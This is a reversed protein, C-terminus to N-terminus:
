KSVRAGTAERGGEGEWGLGAAERLPLSLAALRGSSARLRAGLAASGVPTGSNPACCPTSLATSSSSGTSPPLPAYMKRNFANM